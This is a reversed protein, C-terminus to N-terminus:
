SYDIRGKPEIVKNKVLNEYQTSYTNDFKRYDISGILVQRVVIYRAKIGGLISVLSNGTDEMEGERYVPMIYMIGDPTEFDCIYSFRNTFASQENVIYKRHTDRTQMFMKKNIIDLLIIGVYKLNPNAISITPRLIAPNDGSTLKGYANKASGLPLVYKKDIDSFSATSDANLEKLVAYERYLLDHASPRPNHRSRAWVKEKLVDFFRDRFPVFGYSQDVPTVTWIASVDVFADHRRIRDLLINLTYNNEAVCYMMLDYDGKTLMALQVMGEADLAARISDPSPEPDIFKVFIFYTSFSIATSNIDITYHIGLSAEMKKLRYPVSQSRMGAIKGISSYSLRANMSLAMLMKTDEQSLHPQMEATSAQKGSGRIAAELTDIRKLYIRELELQSTSRHRAPVIVGDDTIWGLYNTKKRSRGMNPDYKSTAEFICFRKNLYKLEIHAGYALKLSEFATKIKEPPQM